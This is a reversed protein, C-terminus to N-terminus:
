SGRTAPLGVGVGVVLLSAECRGPVSAAGGGSALAATEGSGSTVQGGMMVVGGGLARCVELVLVVVVVCVQGCVVYVGCVGGADVTLGGRGPAPPRGRLLGSGKVGGGQGRTEEMRGGVVMVVVMLLLMVCRLLLLSGHDHVQVFLKLLAAYRDRVGHGRDGRM